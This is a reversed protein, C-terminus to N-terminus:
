RGLALGVSLGPPLADPRNGDSVGDASVADPLVPVPLASPRVTAFVAASGSAAGM